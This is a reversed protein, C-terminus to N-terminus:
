PNRTPTTDHERRCTQVAALVKEVRYALAVLDHKSRVVLRFTAQPHLRDIASGSLRMFRHRRDTLRGLDDASLQGLDLSTPM